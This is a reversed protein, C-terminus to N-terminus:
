LHRVQLIIWENDETNLSELQKKTAATKYKKAINDLKQAYDRELHSIDRVFNRFQNLSHIGDSIYDVIAPVQDQLNNGFTM